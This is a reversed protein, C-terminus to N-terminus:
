SCYNITSFPLVVVIAFRKLAIIFSQNVSSPWSLSSCLVVVIPLAFYHLLLDIDFSGILIWETNVDMREGLLVIRVQVIRRRKQKQPSATRLHIRWKLKARLKFTVIDMMALLSTLRISPNIVQIPMWRHRKTAFLVREVAAIGLVRCLSESPM